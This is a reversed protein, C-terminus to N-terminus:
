ENLLTPKSNESKAPVVDITMDRYENRSTIIDNYRSVYKVILSYGAYYNGKIKISVLEFQDAHQEIFRRFNNEAIQANKEYEFIRIFTKVNKDKYKNYNNYGSMAIAGICLGFILGIIMGM